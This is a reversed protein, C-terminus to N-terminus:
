EGYGFVDCGIAQRGCQFDVVGHSILDSAELIKGLHSPKPAHSRRPFSRTRCPAWRQGSFGSRYGWITM